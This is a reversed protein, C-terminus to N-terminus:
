KIITIEGISNGKLTENWIEKNAFALNYIQNNYYEEGFLCLYVKYKGNDLNLNFSYNVNNNGNFNGVKQSFVINENEDVFIVKAQKSKNLNGFGVNEINLKIILKDFRNSYEFVSNRLVFRYGMHNEIYTFASQSFYLSDNGCDSTYKSNKWKEIVENNWKLNLYSLNIKNMEPICVDINHLNSSPVVVEGGYPLHNTQKSLFNIEKDRNTFTGLDDVSGLYGDNYIGLRFARSSSSIEYNDIENITINLYDYIMKPTRVLVAINNTNFLITEIIPSIYTKNAMKSTHMEGWPGILGTELATITNEYNNIITCFQKIHEKIMEINPEFNANGNFGTDYAFRLIANKNHQKLFKLLEDLGQMAKATFPKDSISNVVKSFDGIDIRLHYLQQNDNIINKNYSIGEESLKVYIPRYFGQDPNNIKELSENYNLNQKYSQLYENANNNWNPVFILILAGIVLVLFIAIFVIFKKKDKM